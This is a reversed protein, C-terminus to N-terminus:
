KLIHIHTVHPVSQRSPCNWLVYHYGNEVAWESALTFATQKDFKTILMVHEKFFSDYPYKNPIIRYHEHEYIAEVEWLDELNGEAIDKDYRQQTELTRM